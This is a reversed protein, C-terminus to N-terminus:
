ATLQRRTMESEILVAVAYDNLCTSVGVKASISVVRSWSGIHQQVMGELADAVFGHAGQM